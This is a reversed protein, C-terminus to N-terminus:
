AILYGNSHALRRCHIRVGAGRRIDLRWVVCWVAMDMGWRGYRVLNM